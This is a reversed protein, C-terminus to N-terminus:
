ESTYLYECVRGDQWFRPMMPGYTESYSTRSPLLPIEIVAFIFQTAAALLGASLLLTSTFTSKGRQQSSVTLSLIWGGIIIMAVQSAPMILLGSLCSHLAGAILSTVLIAKMPSNASDIRNPNKLHYLLGLGIAIALALVLLIAVVGWEGMIRLPFSHPHAPLTLTSDCAYQTPGTGLLPNDQADKVSLQWFVERGSRHMMSRGASHAYFEGSESQPSFWSNLFLISSYLVIGVLIGGLQYKVWYKRVAPLLLAIFTMSGLLSVVTGRAALAIVLFWQLGLLAICGYKVWRKGPFILPLAAIVPISWTQLQNYFRPHAFHVLAQDYNFESGIVWGAIFGMFEQSFVAFGMAVLLLVAWKDFRQGLLDRSSAAVFVLIMMVFMMSVDILAYAPHSLRLSSAIGILFFLTLCIQIFPSIHSLREITKVRLPAWAITFLLIVTFIGLQLVRKADFVSLFGLPYFASTVV